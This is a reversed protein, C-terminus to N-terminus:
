FLRDGRRRDPAEGGEIRRAPADGEIRRSPADDAIRRTPADDDELWQTPAEDRKGPPEAGAPAEDGPPTARPARGPAEPPEGSWDPREGLVETVAAPDARRRPPRPRQPEVEAAAPNPPEPRHAARVRLGAALLAGAAALAAFMGWQIGYSSTEDPADPKDFLRWVLLLLAWGGALAIATGDGGPLHFGKKESRAWLLFLVGAAVLLVAAEIFSFVGFASVNRQVFERSGEPVYSQQYWPLLLSLALAAAAIGANRLEPPLERLRALASPV